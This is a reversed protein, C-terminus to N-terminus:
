AFGSTVDSHVHASVWPIRLSGTISTETSASQKPRLFGDRDRPGNQSHRAAHDNWAHYHEVGPHCPQCSRPVMANGGQMTDVM